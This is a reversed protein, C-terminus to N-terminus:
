LFARRMGTQSLKKTGDFRGIGKSEISGSTTEFLKSAWTPWNHETMM